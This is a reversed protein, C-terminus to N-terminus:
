ARLLTIGSAYNEDNKKALKEALQRLFMQCEGGLGANTSFVLLTFAGMEVDRVRQQYKRKEENDQEKFIDATPKGQNSLRQTLM